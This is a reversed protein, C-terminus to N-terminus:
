GGTAGATKVSVVVAVPFWLGRPLDKDTALKGDHFKVATFVSADSLERTGQERWDGFQDYGECELSFTFYLRDGGDPRSGPVTRDRAEYRWFTETM